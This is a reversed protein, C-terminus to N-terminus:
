FSGRRNLAVLLKSRIVHNLLPRRVGYRRPLREGAPEPWGRGSHSGCSGQHGGSIATSARRTERFACFPRRPKTSAVLKTHLASLRVTGDTVQLFASLVDM